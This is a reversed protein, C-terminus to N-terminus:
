RAKQKKRRIALVSGSGARVVYRTPPARYGTSEGAAVVERTGVGVVTVEDGVFIAAEALPPQGRPGANSAVEFTVDLPNDFTVEATGSDDTLAFPQAHRRRVPAWSGDPQRDLRGADGRPVVEYYVCARGSLPAVMPEGAGSRSVRGVVRVPGDAASGIASRRRRRLAAHAMAVQDRRDPAPDPGLLWRVAVVGLAVGGVAWWGM